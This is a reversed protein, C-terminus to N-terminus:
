SAHWPILMNTCVQKGLQEKRAKAEAVRLEAQIAAIAARADREHQVDQLKQTIKHSKEAAAAETAAQRAREEEQKRQVADAMRREKERARAAVDDERQRRMMEARESAAEVRRLTHDRFADLEHPDPATTFGLANPAARAPLLAAARSQTSSLYSSSNPVRGSRRDAQIAYPTHLVHVFMM